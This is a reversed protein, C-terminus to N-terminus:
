FPNDNPQIKDPPRKWGNNKVADIMKKADWKTLGNLEESSYGKSKLLKMQPETASILRRHESLNEQLSHESPNWGSKVLRDRQKESLFKQVHNKFKQANQQFVAFPDIFETNYTSKIRIGRLRQAEREKKIEIETLLLDDFIDSSGEKKAKRKVREIVEDSFQGGLIDATTILKHKGTVGAFDWVRVNPKKSAAIASIREEPSQLGDVVGKLPRLGRGLMQCYRIRSKTPKCLVIDEINPNDYAETAVAVNCLMQLDGSYFREFIEKRRDEPTCGFVGDAIGPRYDNLITAMREAQKISQCFILTRRDKCERIIEDAMALTIKDRELIESLDKSNFDDAVTRCASLDYEALTKFGQIPKVLWGDKILDLIEVDFAVDQVIEKLTINDTRDPTATVGLTKLRPNGDQFYKVVRMYSPSVYHHMEDIILLDFDTPKWQKLRADNASYLTQPTAIVTANKKRGFSDLASEEAKEICTDIGFRLLSDQIQKVLEGMHALILTRCPQNRKIVSSFIFTKGGGTAMVGILHNLSKWKEFVSEISAEQYPRPAPSSPLTLEFLENM